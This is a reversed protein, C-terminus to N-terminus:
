DNEDHHRDGCDQANKNKDNFKNCNKSNKDQKSHNNQNQKM